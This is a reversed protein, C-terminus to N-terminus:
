AHERWAPTTSFEEVRKAAKTIGWHGALQRAQDRVAASREADVDALIDGLDALAMAQAARAQMADYSEIAMTLRRAAEDTEGLTAYLLGCHADVSGVWSTVNSAYLNRYPELLDVLTRAVAADGMQWIVRAAWCMTVTWDRDLPVTSFGSDVHHAMAARAQEFRGDEAHVRALAVDTIALTRRSRAGGTRSIQDILAIITPLMEDLRGLSFLANMRVGIYWLEATNQEASRGLALMEDSLQLAEELRGAVAARTSEMLRLHYGLNVERIRVSTERLAALSSDMLEVDGLELAAGFAELTWSSIDWVSADDALASRVEAALERREFV